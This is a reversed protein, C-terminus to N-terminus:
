IFSLVKDGEEDYQKGKAANLSPRKLVQCASQSFIKPRYPKPNVRPRGKKIPMRMLIKILLKAVTERLITLKFQDAAQKMVM